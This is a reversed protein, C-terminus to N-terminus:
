IILPSIIVEILGSIVLVILAIMVLDISDFVIRRFKDTRFDHRIIAISIIGGALGAIFYAAIEPIGHLSYKLLLLPAISLSNNARILSGILAAFISANWTLIFIAGFGYFFAFLLCFAMVKINNIFIIGFAEYPTIFNGTVPSNINKITTIQTSFLSEATDAPLILYWTTFAAVFGLFLYIFVMLAKGHEKLLLSEKKIEIDKKEELKIAGYVLPVSALATLAIMTSSATDQFLFLCAIVAISAYIIGIIFSEWPKREAQIPNILAELVM